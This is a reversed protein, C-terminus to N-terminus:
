SNERWGRHKNNQKDMYYKTYEQLHMWWMMDYTKYTQKIIGTTIMNCAIPLMDNFFVQIINFLWVTPPNVTYQTSANVMYLKEDYQLSISLKENCLLTSSITHNSMMATSQTSYLHMEWMLDYKIIDTKKM